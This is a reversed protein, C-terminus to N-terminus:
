FLLMKLTQHVSILTGPLQIVGNNLNLEETKLQAFSNVVSLIVFSVYFIIRIM